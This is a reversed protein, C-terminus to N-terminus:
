KRGREKKGNKTPFIVVAKNYIPLKDVPNRSRTVQEITFSQNIPGEKFRKV